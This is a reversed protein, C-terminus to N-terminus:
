LDPFWIRMPTENLIAAQDGESLGLEEALVALHQQYTAKGRLWLECPFDSGWTCREPRFAEILRLLIPHMDRFPYAEESGTVAFSLKLHLNSYRALAAVRGVIESDVGEAARPYAAHDLVVPVDPYAALLDALQDIYTVDQRPQIHACVVVGLREAAAWLRRAGPHDFTARAQSPARAPEMRLGRVNYENALRELEGVSEEAAPDLTCVGTAWAAQARATEALLRNDWKYATGTQVLVARTVGAAAMERQLHEIDGSGEPPRLPEAIKPYRREDAHYIHAHTDVIPRM